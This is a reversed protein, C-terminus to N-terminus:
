RTPKYGPKRLTLLYAALDGTVRRDITFDMAAPYNHADTLFATLTQRTLGARNAIDDFPPSEPNPGTGNAAIWHCGACHAAAFAQGRIAAAKDASHHRAGSLPVALMALPLLLAPPVVKM